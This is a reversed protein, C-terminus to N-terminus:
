AILSQIFPFNTHTHPVPYTSLNRYYNRTPFFGPVHESLPKEPTGRIFRAILADVPSFFSSPPPAPKSEDLVVEAFVKKGRPATQAVDARREGGENRGGEGKGLSRERAFGDRSFRGVARSVTALRSM